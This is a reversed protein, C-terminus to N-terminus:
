IGYWARNVYARPGTNWDHATYTFGPLKVADWQFTDKDVIVTLMCDSMGVIKDLQKLEAAPCRNQNICAFDLWLFCRSMGSIYKSM